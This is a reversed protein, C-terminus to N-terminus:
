CGPQKSKLTMFLSQAMVMDGVWAPGVVLIRSSSNM